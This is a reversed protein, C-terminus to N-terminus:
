KIDVLDDQGETAEAHFVSSNLALATSAAGGVYKLGSPLVIEYLGSPLREVTIKEGIHM